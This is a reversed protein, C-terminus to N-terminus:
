KLPLYIDTVLKNESVDIGANVFDCFLPAHRLQEGSQPLWIGCLKSTIISSVKPGVHRMRACRGGAIAKNVMDQPNAAIRKDVAICFDIRNDAPPTTEPNTYYVGYLAGMRYRDKNARRWESLSRMATYAQDMPGRYEFAAVRAEEFMVIEVPSSAEQMGRVMPTVQWSAWRPNKRFASPTQGLERRFARSFSEANAFGAQFAIDTVSAQPNFVLHMSARRLRLLQVLRAVTIGTYDSFQRHFHFRSFNAVRSLTEVSLEGDLHDHIYDLVKNIRAAYRAAHSKGTKSGGLPVQQNM